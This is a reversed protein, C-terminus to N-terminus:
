GRQWSRAKRFIMLKPQFLFAEISAMWRFILHFDKMNGKTECRWIKTRSQDGIKRAFDRVNKLSDFVFLGYGKKALWDPAEAWEGIQYQVEAKSNFVIFSVQGGAIETTIKYYRKKKM